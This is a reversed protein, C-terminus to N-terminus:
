DVMGRLKKMFCDPCLVSPLLQNFEFSDNNVFSGCNKCILFNNNAGIFGRPLTKVSEDHENNYEDLLRDLEEDTEISQDEREKKWIEFQKFFHTGCEKCLFFGTTPELANAYRLKRKCM